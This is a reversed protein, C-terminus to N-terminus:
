IERPGDYFLRRSGCPSQTSLSLRGERGVLLHPSPSSNAEIALAEGV